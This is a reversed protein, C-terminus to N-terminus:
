KPIKLEPVAGERPQFASQNKCQCLTPTLVLPLRNDTEGTRKGEVVQLAQTALFGSMQKAGGEAWGKGEAIAVTGSVPPSSHSLTRPSATLTGGLLTSFNVESQKIVKGPQFNCGKIIYYFWAERPAPDWWAKALSTFVWRKRFPPLTFGSRLYILFM